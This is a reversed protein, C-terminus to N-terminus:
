HLMAQLPELWATLIFPFGVGTVITIAALLVESFRMGFPVAGAEELAMGSKVFFVNRQLSLFYALTLVSALLAIAAYVFRGSSWLAIIIILKSWFGSLPPIGATSLLGIVSTTATVPVQPGFGAIITM